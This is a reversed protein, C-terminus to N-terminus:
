RILVKKTIVDNNLYVKVIYIGPSYNQNITLRKKMEFKVKTLEKGVTNFISVHGSNYIDPFVIVVEKGVVYIHVDNEKLDNKGMPNAFHLKFRDYEDQPSADFTYVAEDTLKTIMGTFLDELYLESGSDFGDFNILSLNYAGATNVRFYVLIETEENFDPMTNVALDNGDTSTTYIQPLETVFLKYADYQSDFDENAFSLFRIVLEDSGVSSNIQLRILPVSEDTTSKFYKKDSHMRTSNEVGVLGTAATAHIFFGQMSPIENTGENVSVPPVYPATGSGV